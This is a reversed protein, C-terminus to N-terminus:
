AAKHAALPCQKERGQRRSANDQQSTPAEESQKCYQSAISRPEPPLTPSTTTESTASPCFAVEIDGIVLTVHALARFSCTCVASTIPHCPACPSLSHEQPTAESFASALRRANWSHYRLFGMLFGYSVGGVWGGSGLASVANRRTSMIKTTCVHAQSFSPYRGNLIILRPPSIDFPSASRAM